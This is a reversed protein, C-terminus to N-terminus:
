IGPSNLSSIGMPKIRGADDWLSERCLNVFVEFFSGGQSTEDGCNSDHVFFEHAAAGVGFSQVGALLLLDMNLGMIIVETACGNRGRCLIPAVM